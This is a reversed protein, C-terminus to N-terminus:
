GFFYLSVCFISNIKEKRNTTERERWTICQYKYTTLTIPTPDVLPFVMGLSPYPGCSYMKGVLQKAKSFTRMQVKCSDM